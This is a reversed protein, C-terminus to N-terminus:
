EPEINDKLVSQQKQFSPTMINQAALVFDLDSM